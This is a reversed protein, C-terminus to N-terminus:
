CNRLSWYQNVAIPGFIMLPVWAGLVPAEFTTGLFSCSERLVLFSIIILASIGMAKFVNRGGRSLIVPLGLFIVGLDLIPQMIRAHITARMPIGLDLSPNRVAQIMDWTSGYQRWSENSALYQFPVKSVVFCDTPKVWDPADQATIVINQENLKLSPGAAFGVPAIVDVLMFGAPRGQEAEQQFANRAKLNMARQVIPKHIIFDPNSIRRDNRFTRDGRILIGTEHDLTANAITGTEEVMQGSDMVLEDLFRPMVAERIVTTLVVVLVFAGILPSVIRFTSVGAAQIPVLENLRMMMAITIMASVLGLLSGVSVAIPLTKFLYYLAMVKPGLKVLNDMNTFLDFVIFVGVVCIFWMILNFFFNRLIYRDLITM